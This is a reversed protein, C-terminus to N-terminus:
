AARQEGDDDGAAPWLDAIPEHITQSILRKTPMSESLGEVTNWVATFTVGRIAAIKTISSGCKKLRYKIYEAKPNRILAM